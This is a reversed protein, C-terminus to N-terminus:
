PNSLTKISNRNNIDIVYYPWLLCSIEKTFCFDEACKQKSLFKMMFNDESKGKVGTHGGHQAVNFWLSM